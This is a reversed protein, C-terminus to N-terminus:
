QVPYSTFALSRGMGSTWVIYANNNTNDVSLDPFTADSGGPSLKVATSWTKGGDISESLFVSPVVNRYDEWVAVLTSGAKKLKPRWAGNYNEAIISARDWNVGDTSSRVVVKFSGNVNEAWVVHIGDSDVVIDPTVSDGSTQSLAVPASWQTGDYSTYFIDYNEDQYIYSQYVMHVKNKGVDIRPYKTNYDERIYSENVIQGNEVVTIINQKGYVNWSIYIRGAKYTIYPTLDEKLSGAQELYMPQSWTDGGDLSERLAITWTGDGDYRSWAVAVRDGESAITLYDNVDTDSLTVPASWTAGADSSRAYNIVSVNGTKKIWAAHIRGGGYAVVPRLKLNRAPSPPSVFMEDLVRGESYPTNFGLLEGITPAIDTMDAVTDVTFNSKFDPGIALFPIRRCCMCSDGHDQFGTKVLDCHRGHDSTIFIATRNAYFADQQIKQYLQYILGDVYQITSTYISWDGSHAAKDVDRFNILVLSPQETDMVRQVEAWTEDDSRLGSPFSVNPAYKDKYIPNQSIGISNILEAKGNIIWTKNQPVGLQKRYYQFISPQDQIFRLEGINKASNNPMFQRVGSTIEVHGSTTSTHGTVLFNTYVTGLPRLENWIYPIYQHTPDDFAESNRIGDIVVIFVNETQYASNVAPGGGPHATGPFVGSLFLLSLLVSFIHKMKVEQMHITEDLLKGYPNKIEEGDKDM